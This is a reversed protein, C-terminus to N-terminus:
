YAGKRSLIVGITRFILAIDYVISWKRQYDLDLSVVDEFNKVSSRGRVQWEGTLGPKVQLRQFHHKSYLEVEDPTPPRTGVLSMDGMLINWFQPFEDLSTCRLFRGVRTIRPDNKNKFIFGQAQNEVLHKQSDAAALMSRFKWIRFKRGNLGCRTQSYFISGPTNLKIAIAIPLFLIGTIALGVLAGVIDISRKTKSLASRHVNQYFDLQNDELGEVNAIFAESISIV